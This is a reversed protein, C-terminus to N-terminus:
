YPPSVCDAYPLADSRSLPNRVATKVCPQGQQPKTRRPANQRWALRETQFPQPSSMSPFAGKGTVDEKLAERHALWSLIYHLYAMTVPVDNLWTGPPHTAWSRIRVMEGYPCKTCPVHEATRWALSRLSPSFYCQLNWGM